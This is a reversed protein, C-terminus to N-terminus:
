VSLQSLQAMTPWRQQVPTVLQLCLRCLLGDEARHHRLPCLPLAFTLMSVAVGGWERDRGRTRVSWNPESTSAPGAAPLTASQEVRCLGGRQPWARGHSSGHPWGQHYTGPVPITDVHATRGPGPSFLLCRPEPSFSLPLSWYPLVSPCPCSPLWLPATTCLVSFHFM